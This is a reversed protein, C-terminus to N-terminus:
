RCGMREKSLEGTRKGSSSNKKRCHSCSTGGGRYGLEMESGLSLMRARASSAFGGRVYLRARAGGKGHKPACFIERYKTGRGAGSGATEENRL